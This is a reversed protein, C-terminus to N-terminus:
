FNGSTTNASLIPVRNYPRNYTRFTNRDTVVDCVGTLSVTKKISGIACPMRMKDRRLQISFSILTELKHGPNGPHKWKRVSQIVNKFICRQESRHKRLQISSRGYHMAFQIKDDFVIADTVCTEHIYAVLVTHCIMDSLSIQVLHFDSSVSRILLDILFFVCPLALLLCEVDLAWENQQIGFGLYFRSYKM